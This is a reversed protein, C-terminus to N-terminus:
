LYSSSLLVRFLLLLNVAISGLIPFLMKFNHPQRHTRVIQLLFAATLLGSVAISFWPIAPADSQFCLCILSSGWSLGGLFVGWPSPAHRKLRSVILWVLWVLACLGASISFISDAAVFSFYSVSSFIEEEPGSGYRVPIGWPSTMCALSVALLIVLFLFSRDHTNKLM